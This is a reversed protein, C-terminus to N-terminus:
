INEKKTVNKNLRNRRGFIIRFGLRAQVKLQTFSRLKRIQKYIFYPNLYNSKVAYNYYHILQEKTLDQAVYTLGYTDHQTWDTVQYGELKSIEYFESGPFPTALSFACTHKRLERAFELTKKISEVTEGPMGILFGCFVQFGLRDLLNIGERLLHIDTGKKMSKLMNIDASEVGVFVKSCGAKRMLKLTEEDLRDARVNCQWVLDRRGFDILEECIERVWRNNVNFTSDSLGLERVNFKEYLMRVEKIINAPSRRRHIKGLAEKAGCFTCSFPCGRSFVLNAFNNKETNAGWYKEMPFSEWDAFPLSDLDSIFPRPPNIIVQNNTRFTIGKIDHFNYPRGKNISDLIELMTYEGEGVVAIDISPNQTLLSYHEATPHPGGVVTLIEPITKKIENIFSVSQPVQSTYIPLGIVDPNEQIIYKIINKRSIHHAHADLLIVNQNNHKLFSSIVSLGYPQIINDYDHVNDLNIPLHILLTKCKKDM